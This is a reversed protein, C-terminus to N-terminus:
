ERVLRHEERNRGGGPQLKANGGRNNKTSGVEQERIRSRRDYVKQPQRQNNKKDLVPLGHFIVGDDM